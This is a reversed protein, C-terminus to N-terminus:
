QACHPAIQHVTRGAKEERHRRQIGLAHATSALVYLTELGYSLGQPQTDNRLLVLDAEQM